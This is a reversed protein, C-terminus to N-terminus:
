SEFLLHPKFKSCQIPMEPSHFPNRTVYKCYHSYVKEFLSDVPEDAVFVFVMNTITRFVTIVRNQLRITQKAASKGMIRSLIVSVSYLSSTLILLSNISTEGEREYKYVMGGSKNIIFFQEVLM